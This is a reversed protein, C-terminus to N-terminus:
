RRLFEKLLELRTYGKLNLSLKIKLDKIEQTDKQCKEEKEKLVKNLVAIESDKSATVAVVSSKLADREVLILKNQSTLDTITKNMQTIANSQEAITSQLAKVHTAYEIAKKEESEKLDEYMEKWKNRSLRMEDLEKQLDSESESPRSGYAKFATEDGYFVNADVGGVIGKVALRNSYQRLATVPWKTAPVASAANYSYDALWLGYGAAIVPSWDNGTATSKNLYILPKCKTISFVRDLWAKCWKVKDAYTVEFDLCLIEGERLLGITKMFWDAESEPANHLDPRAFHYYGLLMGVNRAGAQNLAFKPDTYGMGETAKMIIFSTATKLVTFDVNGQYQSVDVGKLMPM